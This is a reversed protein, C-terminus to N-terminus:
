QMKELECLQNDMAVFNRLELPLEEMALPKANLNYLMDFVPEEAFPDHSIASMKYFLIYPTNPSKFNHIENPLSTSVYSDDFKYWHGCHDRALTFYHGADLSLGQHVVVAYLSYQVISVEELTEKSYRKM